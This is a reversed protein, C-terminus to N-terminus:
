LGERLARMGDTMHKAVSAPPMRLRASVEPISLGRFYLLEIVRRQDATLTAIVLDAEPRRETRPETSAARSTLSSRSAQSQGARDQVARDTAKEHVSRMVLSRVTRGDVLYAAPSRWIDHFTRLMVDDVAQPNPLIATALAQAHPGFREFFMRFAGEDREEIRTLLQRDDSAQLSPVSADGTQRLLM